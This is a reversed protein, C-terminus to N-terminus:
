GRLCRGWGQSACPRTRGSVDRYRWAACQLLGAQRSRPLAWRREVLQAAVGLRELARALLYQGSPWGGLARRGRLRARRGRAGLWQGAGAAAHRAPHPLLRPRLGFVVAATGGAGPAVMWRGLRGRPRDLQAYRRTGWSRQMGVCRGLLRRLEWFSCWVLGLPGTPLGAVGLHEGSDYGPDAGERAWPM